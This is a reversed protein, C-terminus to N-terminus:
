EGMPTTAALGAESPEEVTQEASDSGLRSFWWVALALVLTAGILSGATVGPYSGLVAERIAALIAGAATVLPVLALYHRLVLVWLAWLVLGTLLGQLLWVVITDVGESGALIFGLALLLGSAIAQRHKWDGTISHVMSVVLLLLATTTIWSGVPGLAASLTPWSDAAGAYSPWPPVLPSKLSTLLAGLGALIAGLGFGAAISPGRDGTPQPPVIRHALGILLASVTAIATTAILGGVVVIAAQLKFPQATVFQASGSRFGNAL